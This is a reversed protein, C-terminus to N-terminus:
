SRKTEGAGVLARDRQPRLHWAILINLASLAASITAAIPTGDALHHADALFAGFIAM